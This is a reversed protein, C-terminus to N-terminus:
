DISQDNIPVIGLLCHLAFLRNPSTDKSHTDVHRQSNRHTLPKLKRVYVVFMCQDPTGTHAM